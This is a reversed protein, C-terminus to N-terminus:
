AVVEENDECPTDLANESVIKLFPLKEQVDEPLQAAQKLTMNVFNFATEAFFRGVGEAIVSDSSNALELMKELLRRTQHFHYIVQDSMKAGEPFIVLQPKMGIAALYGELDALRLDGDLGAELKSIRSQTCGMSQAIDGQSLGKSARITILRKILQRERLRKELSDAFQESEPIDRIMKSVDTYQKKAM